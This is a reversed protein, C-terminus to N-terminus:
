TPLPPCVCDDHLKLPHTPNADPAYLRKFRLKIIDRIFASLADLTADTWPKPRGRQGPAGILLSRATAANAIAPRRTSTASPTPATTPWSARM